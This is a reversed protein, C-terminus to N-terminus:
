TRASSYSLCLCGDFHSATSKYYVNYGILGVPVGPIGTGTM